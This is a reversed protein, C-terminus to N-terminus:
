FPLEDSYIDLANPDIFWNWDGFKSIDNKATNALEEYYTMDIDDQKGLAKVDEEEMWRYGKTGTVSSFKDDQVRMLEGGGFGPKIPLFLGVRGIFKMCHGKDIEKQLDEDSLSEYQDLLAQDKKTLNDKSKSRIDKLKEYVSVDPLNENMDLYLASKVAKTQGLDMLSIDEHSFLTKFVYPEAFQAGVAEWKNADATGDDKHHGVLVANNVLALRDWEAEIEFKYGYKEGIDHVFKQIHEDPNKIKISDTKIHVVTYGQDQVLHKLLIMFLEGRKAVINDVNRPDKFKNDFKASTLGYVSNIATKLATSLSKADKENVLYSSLKGGFMKRANEYDKHKIYIRTQILDRLNGTFRDGFINLQLMSNPHMSAVDNTICHGYMGPEAYVYGGEGIEEGFFYSKGDQYIYGPFCNIGYKDALTAINYKGIIDMSAKKPDDYHPHPPVQEGYKYQKGTSLDTYVFEDQPHATTGFILRATLQNTTDNCTMGTISALIERALFDGHLYGFAAETAIVDNCCYEAVKDWLEKPVPKDWPIGLEQHKIDIGQKAMEIELKKLSKKNGASAFDYIDTYSLNVANMFMGNDHVKKDNVLRQSLEYLDNESYGLMRAYLLHNDYKRNNFGVIKHKVFESVQDPTPNFLITCKHDKTKYVLLFLNPFCETDFFVLVLEDDGITYAVPQSIEKSKFQMEPILELCEKAHNTSKGAFAIIDPRLPIVDYSIGSAYAEDLVTKIFNVSTVTKGPPIEKRLAKKILNILHKDDKIAKPDIMQPKAEKIPFGSTLTAIPIDNCKTLKRRLAWSGGKKPAHKIEVDEGLVDQLKTTDGKYIYTLHVGAGGRSFEAYTKPFKAAEKLNLAADKKGEANRKDLDIVIIDEPCKVYHERNTLINRLTKTNNAWSMTPIGDETAYQAPFDKAFEDFLSAQDKLDLWNDDSEKASQEVPKDETDVKNKQMVDNADLYDRFIKKKFGYYYERPRTGDKLTPRHRVGAFYEQFKSKFTVLSGTKVFNKECYEKWNQWAVTSSIGDENKFVEYLDAVFNYMDNSRDLMELPIDDRYYGYRNDGLSMYYDYCHKAIAGLEYTLMQHNLANFKSIPSIKDGTQSVIMLRRVLGDDLHGFDIVDNTAMFCFAHPVITYRSKGKENIIISKHSIISKFVTTDLARSLDGDDQIAIPPNDKFASTAFADKGSVLDKANFDTWYKNEGNTFLAKILDLTTSKGSGGAGYLVIAKQTLSSEGAVISGIAWEIRKLNDESYLTHMIENYADMSGDELSYGLKFSSYDDRKPNDNAFFIKGDLSVFNDPHNKCFKVFSYYVGNIDDKPYLCKISPIDNHEKGEELMRQRTENLMDTAIRMVDYINRSWTKKDELWVAYFSGGRVMLDKSKINQWSPVLCVTKGPGTKTTITIFDVSM